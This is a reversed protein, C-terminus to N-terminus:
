RLQVITFRYPEEDKSLAESVFRMEFPASALEGAEIRMLRLWGGAGVDFAARLVGTGGPGVTTIAVVDGRDPITCGKARAMACRLVPDNPAISFWTRDSADPETASFLLVYTGEAASRLTIDVSWHHNGGAATAHVLAHGSSDITGQERTTESPPQCGAAAVGLSSFGILALCALTRRFM